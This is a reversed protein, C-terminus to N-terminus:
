KGCTMFRHPSGPEIALRHARGEHEGLLESTSRSLNTLRVQGDAACSVIGQFDIAGRNDTYPLFRAQFVNNRHRSHFSTKRKHSECDWIMLKLDDSGSIWYKGDPSCSVTNVCGDHGRLEGSLELRRLTNPNGGYAYHLPCVSRRGERTLFRGAGRRQRERLLTHISSCPPPPPPLRRLRAAPRSPRKKSAGAAAPAATTAEDSCRAHQRQRRQPGIPLLLRTSGAPLSRLAQGPSSPSRSADVSSGAAAVGAGAVPPQPATPPPRATPSSAANEGASTSTCSASLNNRGDEHGAAGEARDGGALPNDM